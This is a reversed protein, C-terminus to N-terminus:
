FLFDPIVKETEPIVLNKEEKVFWKENWDCMAKDVVQQSIDLYVQTTQISSHGMINKVVPLSVGAEILHTATTHRMVHPTYEGSCFKDPHAAKAMVIYKKFIEEICSVSIQENRQTSFVHRNPKNWLKRYTIYKQLMTSADGTIKVRRSKQGKGVLTLIIKGDECKTINEITLDCIEQARAGSAYMVTLLVFDRFGLPSTTDPLPFLVELEERTFSSRQKGKVRRLSKKTARAVSNKFIYAAEFNRNQAYDAFSALAGMRQKATSRSSGRDKILWDIFGTILDFDLITFAVHGADINKKEKIYQLLLRFACKYSKVTNPSANMSNPMYETIYRRLLNVFEYDSSSRRM